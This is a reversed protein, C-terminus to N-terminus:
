DSYSPEEVPTPDAAAAPVKTWSAVFEKLMDAFRKILASFKSIAELITEFHVDTSHM